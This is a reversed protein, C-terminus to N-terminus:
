LGLYDGHSFTDRNVDALGSTLHAIGTPLEVTQLVSQLRISSKGSIVLISSVVAEGSEEVFSSRTLRQYQLDRLSNVIARIFTFMNRAGDKNIQLGAHHIFYPISGVLLKKM